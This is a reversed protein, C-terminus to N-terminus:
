TTAGWELKLQYGPGRREETGFNSLTIGLLRVPREPASEALLEIGTEYLMQGDNVFYPLTRARTHQEFNDYKLKLTVTKGKKKDKKARESVKQAIKELKKHMEEDSRLDTDFTQEAGISKRIRNPKVASRHIGRVIDYYYAGNKGFHKELFTRDQRKLDAGTFIGLQMMKQATVKGVGHFKRIELQELFEVVEEPSILKQGNPKNVESAVKALFKNISIGASATLGTGALIRERIELAIMTASPMNKKNETVDLYAEDLSLPEVLDTYDFFVKRIQRSVEHYRDFRPKVFILEPCLQAATISPMASRVGFKRAEYSAAAVVGRERSRGVAIPRGKLEPNDYQEVSAYFADM